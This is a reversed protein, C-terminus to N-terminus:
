YKERGGIDTFEPNVCNMLPRWRVATSNFCRSCTGRDNSKRKILLESLAHTWETTESGICSPFCISSGSRAILRTNGHDLTPRCRVLRQNRGGVRQRTHTGAGNARRRCLPLTRCSVRFLWLYCWFHSLSSLRLNPAFTAACTSHDFSLLAQFCMPRHRLLLYPPVPM